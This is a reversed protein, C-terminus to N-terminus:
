NEPVMTGPFQKILSEAQDKTVHPITVTYLQQRQPASQLMHWTEPGVIGDAKLGWDQQFQKVAALTENGFDGDAGYKPLYYWHNLLMTQLLTVYPGKDGKRLTPFDESSKGSEPIDKEDFSVGKLEGWYKWKTNTVKSKIVGKSAGAAEIVEGNGIYLGVHSYKKGNFCFVATGPKLEEGDFRKGNVLEGNEACWKKFMTDSGHYMQGGLTKFAYAFLGSCDTVWHGIWKHGYKASNARDPNDAYAKVYAANKAETWKEHTKGWIYGWKEQLATQFIEILSASSIM